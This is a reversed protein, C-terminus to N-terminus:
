ATVTQYVMPRRGVHGAAETSKTKSIKHGVKQAMSVLRKASVVSKLHYQSSIQKATRGKKLFSALSNLRMTVVNQVERKAAEKGAKRDAVKTSKVKVAKKKTSM